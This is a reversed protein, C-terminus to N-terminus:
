GFRLRIDINSTGDSCTSCFESYAARVIAKFASFSPIGPSCMGAANDEFDDKLPRIKLPEVTAKEVARRHGLLPVVDNGEKEQSLVAIPLGDILRLAADRQNCIPAAERM